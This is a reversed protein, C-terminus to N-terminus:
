SKQAAAELDKVLRAFQKKLARADHIKQCPCAEDFFYALEEATMNEIGSAFSLGFQFIDQHYAGGQFPKITGKKFVITRWDRATRAIRDWASLDGRNDAETANELSEHHREWHLWEFLGKPERDEAPIAGGLMSLYPFCLRSPPLPKHKADIDVISKEMQELLQNRRTEVRRTVELTLTSLRDAPATRLASDAENQISALELM